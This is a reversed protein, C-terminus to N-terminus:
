SLSHIYYLLVTCVISKIWFISFILNLSSFPFILILKYSHIYLFFSIIYYLISCCYAYFLFAIIFCLFSVWLGSSQWQLRRRSGWRPQRSLKYTSGSTYKYLVNFITLSNITAARQCIKYAASYRWTTCRPLVEKVLNFKLPNHSTCKRKQLKLNIKIELM